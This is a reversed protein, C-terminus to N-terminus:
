EISVVRVYPRATISSRIIRIPRVNKLMLNLDILHANILLFARLGAIDEPYSLIFNPMLM